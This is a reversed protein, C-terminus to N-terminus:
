AQLCTDGDAQLQQRGREGDCRMCGCLGLQAQGRQAIARGRRGTVLPTQTVADDAREVAIRVVDVIRYQLFIHFADPLVQDIRCARAALQRVLQLLAKGPLDQQPPVARDVGKRQRAAIQPHMQAQDAHDARTVLQRRHQRMLQAVDRLAVNCPENGLLALLRWQHDARHNQARQSGAAAGIGGHRHHHTALRQGHLILEIERAVHLALGVAHAVPQHRWCPERRLAKHGHEVLQLLGVAQIVVAAPGIQAAVRQGRLAHGVHMRAKRTANRRHRRWGQFVHHHGCPGAHQRAGAHIHQALPGLLRAGGAKAGLGGRLLRRLQIGGRQAGHLQAVPRLRPFHRQAQLLGGGGVGIGQPLRFSSCASSSNVAPLGPAANSANGGKYGGAAAGASGREM